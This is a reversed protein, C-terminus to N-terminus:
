SFFINAVRLTYKVNVHQAWDSFDQDPMVNQHLININLVAHRLLSYVSHLSKQLKHEMYGVVAVAVSLVALDASAELGSLHPLVQNYLYKCNLNYKYM